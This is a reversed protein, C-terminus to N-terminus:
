NRGSSFEEMWRFTGTKKVDEGYITKFDDRMSVVNFGLSEWKTRLEEAKEPNGYDREDDDAILMFAASRYPNDTITYLHMSQDGSSNGFSLVPKQGIEEAIASVKNMKENKESVRDTRIVQDEPTLQYRLGAEGKQADAELAVDTGIIQSEPIDLYDRVIARCTDRDSGSCVYVTFDNAQLYEVAEVMPLFFSNGYLMGTFGDAKQMLVDTVYDSFEQQTMGEFVRAYEKTHEDIMEATYANTLGADRIEEALRVQEATPEFDPDKLVRWEYLYCVFYTPYLEAVLTGDMDFVAIRNETPIFNPSNEDTVDKVFAMLKEKAECGDTWQSLPDGSIDATEGPTGPEPAKTVTVCLLVTMVLAAIVAFIAVTKWITLTNKKEEM